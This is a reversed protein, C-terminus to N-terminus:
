KKDGLIIMNRQWQPKVLPRILTSNAMKVSQLSNNVFCTNNERYYLANALLGEQPNGLADSLTEYALCTPTFGTTPVSQGFANEGKFNIAFYVTDCNNTGSMGYPKGCTTEGIRIVQMFPSLANIITESASCTEKTTLVFLRKLNLYPLTQNSPYSKTEFYEYDTSYKKNYVYHKFLKGATKNGGIMAALENAVYVYGGSNFRLDLVLDSIQQQKFYSVAELLKDTATAIHDNFLLYGVKDQVNNNNTLVHYYPVPSTVLNQGTLVVTKYYGKGVDLFKISLQVLPQPKLLQEIQEFSLTNIEQNNLSAVYDGRMVGAQAAASNPEVFRVRLYNDQDYAWLIGYSLQLGSEFFGEAEEKSMTYSFRDKDKVLLADFYNGPTAYDTVKREPIEDYWLYFDDLYGRVWIKEADATCVNEASRCVGNMNIQGLRCSINPTTATNSPNNTSQQLQNTTQQPETDGGGGGCAALLSFMIFICLGKISAYM